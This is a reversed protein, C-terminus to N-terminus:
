RRPRRTADEAGHTAWEGRGPEEDIGLATLLDARRVILKRGLRLPTIPLQGAALARYAASRSIGFAQPVVPDFPFAVPLLRLDAATIGRSDTGFPTISTHPMSPREAEDYDDLRTTETM